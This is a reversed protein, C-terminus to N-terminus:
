DPHQQHAPHHQRRHLHTVCASHSHTTVVAHQPTMATQHLSEATLFSALCAFVFAKCCWNSSNICSPICSYLLSEHVLRSWCHFQGRHLRTAGHLNTSTALRFSSYPFCFCTVPIHDESALDAAELALHSLQVKPPEESLARLDASIPCLHCHSSTHSTTGNTWRKGPCRYLCNRSNWM